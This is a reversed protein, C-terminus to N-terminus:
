SEPGRGGLPTNGAYLEATAVVDSGACRAHFFQHHSVGFDGAYHGDILGGQRSDLVGEVVGTQDNRAVERDSADDRIVPCLVEPRRQRCGVHRRVIEAGFGDREQEFLDGVRAHWRPVV